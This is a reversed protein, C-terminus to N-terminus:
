QETKRGDGASRPGDSRSVGKAGARPGVTRAQSRGSANDGSNYPKSQGVRTATGFPGRPEDVHHGTHTKLNKTM